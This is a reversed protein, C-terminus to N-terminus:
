QLAGIVYKMVDDNTFNTKASECRERKSKGTTSRTGVTNVRNKAAKSQLGCSITNFILTLQKKNYVAISCLNGLGRLHM